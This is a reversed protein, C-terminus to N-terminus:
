AVQRNPLEIVQGPESECYDAWAQMLGRRHDFADEALYAAEVEDGAQKQHALTEEIVRNPHPVHDKLAQAHWVKEAWTKFSSRFGHVTTPSLNKLADLMSNKNIPFVRESLRPTERLLTMAQRSLAVDHSEDNKTRPIIWKDHCIDDWRLPPTPERGDDKPQGTIDGTRVGTLILFHLARLAPTDSEAERLTRMFAPIQRYPISKHHQEKRRKGLPDLAGKLIRWQAPNERTLRHAIAWDFVYGIDRLLRRMSITKAAWEPKLVDLVDTQTILEVRTKGFQLLVKAM